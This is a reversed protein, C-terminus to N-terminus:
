THQYPFTIDWPNWFHILQQFQVQKPQKISSQFNHTPLHDAQNYPLTKTLVLVKVFILNELQGGGGKLVIDKFIREKKPLSGKALNKHFSIVDWRGYIITM